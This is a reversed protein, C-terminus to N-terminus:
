HEGFNFTVGALIQFNRYQWNSTNQTAMSTLSQTLRLDGFVSFLDSLPINLGASIVAGFDSTGLNRAAYSVNDTHSVGSSDTYTISWNSIALTYFAGLGISFIRLPYFKLLVPFHLIGSSETATVAGFNSDYNQETFTQNLYLTGIELGFSKNIVFSMLLGGGLSERGSFSLNIGNQQAYPGSFLVDGAISLSPNLGATSYKSVFFGVCILIQWWKLRKIRMVVEGEFIESM